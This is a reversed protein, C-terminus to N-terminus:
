PKYELLSRFYKPESFTQDILPPGAQDKLLSGNAQDPFLLQAIVTVLAPYLAAPKLYTSM